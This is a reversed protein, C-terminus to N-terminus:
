SRRLFDFKDTLIEYLELGQDTTLKVSFKNEFQRIYNSVITEEAEGRGFESYAEHTDWNGEGFFDDADEEDVWNGIEEDLDSAVTDEELSNVFEIMKEKMPKEEEAFYEKFSVEKM